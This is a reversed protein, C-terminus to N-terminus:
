HSQSKSKLCKSEWEKDKYRQLGVNVVDSLDIKSINIMLLVTMLVDSLKVVLDIEYRGYARRYVISKWLESINYQLIALRDEFSKLKEKSMYRSCFDDLDVLEWAKLGGEINFKVDM